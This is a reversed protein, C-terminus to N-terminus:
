FNFLRNSPLSLSAIIPCFKMEKFLCTCGGHNVNGELEKYAAFLCAAAACTNRKGRVVVDHWKIGPM